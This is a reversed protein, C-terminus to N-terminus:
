LKVSRRFRRLLLFCFESVNMGNETLYRDGKLFQYRLPCNKNSFIIKLSKELIATSPLPLEWRGEINNSEWGRLIYRLIKMM